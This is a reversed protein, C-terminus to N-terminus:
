HNLAFLFAGADTNWLMTDGDYTIHVMVQHDVTGDAVTAQGQYINDAAHIATVSTVHIGSERLQQDSSLFQNMSALVKDPLGDASPQFAYWIGFAAAIATAPGVTAAVLTQVFGLARNPPSPPPEIPQEM